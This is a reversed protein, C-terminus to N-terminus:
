RSPLRNTTTWRGRSDPPVQIVRPPAQRERRANPDRRAADAWDFAIARAHASIGRLDDGLGAKLRAILDKAIEGRYGTLSQSGIANDFNLIQEEAAWRFEEVAHQKRQTVLDAVIRSYTRVVQDEQMKEPLEFVSFQVGEHGGDIGPVFMINNSFDVRAKRLGSDAPPNIALSEFDGTIDIVAPDALQSVISFATKLAHVDSATVTRPRTNADNNEGTFDSHVKVQTQEDGDLAREGIWALAEPISNFPREAVQRAGEESGEVKEHLVVMFRPFAKGHTAHMYDSLSRDFGAYIVKSVTAVCLTRAERGKAEFGVEILPVRVADQSIPGAILEDLKTM